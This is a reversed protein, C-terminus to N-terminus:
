HKLDVSLSLHDIQQVPTLQCKKQNIVMGAEQLDQLMIQLQKQVVQPSNGVVLIDDLYIWTLFSQKRWKESVGEHHNAVATTFHENWFM